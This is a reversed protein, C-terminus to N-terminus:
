GPAGSQYGFLRQLECWLEFTHEPDLSIIHWPTTLEVGDPSSSRSRSVFLMGEYSGERRYTAPLGLARYSM